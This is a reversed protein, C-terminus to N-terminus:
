AVVSERRMEIPLWGGSVIRSLFPILIIKWKAFTLGPPTLLDQNHATIFTKYQICETCIILELTRTKLSYSLYSIMMVMMQLMLTM